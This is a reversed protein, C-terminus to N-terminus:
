PSMWISVTESVWIFVRLSTNSLSTHFFMTLKEMRKWTIVITELSNMSFCALQKKQKIPFETVMVEYDTSGSETSPKERSEPHFGEYEVM